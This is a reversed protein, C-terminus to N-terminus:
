FGVKELGKLNLIQRAEAPTAVDIGLGEAINRVLDVHEASSKALVGPKVYLNDELGVRVNGGMGLAATVLPFQAKGAAAVSWKFDGIQEKATKVLFALNEITAPIGGLIGMVFQIYVPKKAIGKRIFFAINNIMGVDYVEFEPLTGYQNMTTIYYELGKYTNAFVLDYTGELFPIEWDFKPNAIKAAAPQLVFNVSGANCSALEPQFAPVAALREELSMGLQGGTTICVIVDSRKKIGSVIEGMLELSSTPRGTKPDRAHIHVVSAGAECAKVADDIIQEKTVPLYQSMSPTHVAGTVAATIILKKTM